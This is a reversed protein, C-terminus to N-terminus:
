RSQFRYDLDADSYSPVGDAGVRKQMGHMDFGRDVLELAFHATYTAGFSRFPIAMMVGEDTSCLAYSRDRRGDLYLADDALFSWDIGAFRREYRAGVVDRLRFPSEGDLVTRMEAVAEDQICFPDDAVGVEIDIRSRDARGGFGGDLEITGGLTFGAAFDHGHITFVADGGAGTAVDGLVEGDVDIGTFAVTAGADRGVIHIRVVNLDGADFRGAGLAAIASALEPVELAFEGAANSVTTTLRDAAPDFTFRVENPGPAWTVDRESRRDAARLDPVGLYVESQRTNRFSRYRAGILSEDLAVGGPRLSAASAASPASAAFLACLAVCAIAGIRPATRVSM